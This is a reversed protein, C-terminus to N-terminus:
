VNMENIIYQVTPEPLLKEMRAIDKQFIAKRSESGSIEEGDVKFRPLVVLEIDNENCCKSVIDNYKNTIEDNKEEGLFRVAINLYKYVYKCSVSEQFCVSDALEGVSTKTSYEPFYQKSAFYGEAPIVFVRNNADLNRRVINLRDISNLTHFNDIVVFVVVADVIKLATNILYEHGKTYPSAYITVTGIRQYEKLVNKIERLRQFHSYMDPNFLDLRQLEDYRIGKRCFYDCRTSKSINSKINRDIVNKFAEALIKNAARNCHGPVDFFMTIDPKKWCNFIDKLYIIKGTEVLNIIEHEMVYIFVFDGSRLNTLACEIISNIANNGLMVGHNFVRASYKKDANLLTQLQFEFTYDDPGCLGMVSCPGFFHIEREYKEPFSGANRIGNKINIEEGNINTQRITMGSYFASTKEFCREEMFSFDKPTTCFTKLFSENEILEDFKRHNKANVIEIESLCNMGEFGSDYIFAYNVGNEELYNVTERCILPLLFTSFDYCCDNTKKLMKRLYKGYKFDFITEFEPYDSLRCEAFRIGKFSKAFYDIIKKDGIIGIERINQQEFICSIKEKFLDVYRLCIINKAISKPLYPYDIDRYEAYIEGNVWVSIRHLQPNDKFIKNIEGSSPNHDFHFIFNKNLSVHIDSSLDKKDIAGVIKDASTIYFISTNDVTLVEVLDVINIQNTVVTIFDAVKDQIINM